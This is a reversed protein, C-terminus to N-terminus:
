WWLCDYYEVFLKRGELVKERHIECDKDYRDKEKPDGTLTMTFEPDFSVDWDFNYSMIEPEKDEFAYIMKLLIEDWYKSVESLLEESTDMKVDLGNAIQYSYIAKGPVGFWEGKPSHKVDYFKRLGAAIIPNLTNELNWTSKVSFIPKKGKLRFSM